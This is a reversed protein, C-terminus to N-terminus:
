RKKSSQEIILLARSRVHLKRYIHHLHKKVTGEAIGLTHAIQRNTMGQMLVDVIERERGTFSPTTERAAPSSAQRREGQRREGQRRDGARRDGGGRRETFPWQLKPRSEENRAAKKRQGLSATGSRENINNL